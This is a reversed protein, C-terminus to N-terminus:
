SSNIRKISILPMGLDRIRALIGHLAPQDPISGTIITMAGESRMTMGELWESHLSGLTGGIEIQYEAKGFWANQKAM